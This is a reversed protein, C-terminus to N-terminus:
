MWVVLAATSVVVLIVSLILVVSLGGSLRVSLIIAVSLVLLVSIIPIVSLATESPASASISGTPDIVSIVDSSPSFAVSSPSFPFLKSGPDLGACGRLSSPSVERGGVEGTDFGLEGTDFAGWSSLPLM